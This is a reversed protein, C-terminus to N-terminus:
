EDRFRKLEESPSIGIYKKYRRYFVSYDQFGSARYAEAISRSQYLTHQAAFIRKRMTYEWISCGMVAKFRRNLYVKNRFLAKELSDLHWEETLNQHIFRIIEGVLADNEASVDSRERLLASLKSLLAAVVSSILRGTEKEDQGGKMLHFTEEMWIQERENLSFARAGEAAARIVFDFGEPLMNPSFLIAFREYTEAGERILINHTQGRPAVIMTGSKLSHINGEVVFDADGGLFYYIEHMNHSHSRFSFHNPDPNKTLTHHVYFNDDRFSFLITDEM